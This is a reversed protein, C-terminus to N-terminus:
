SHQNRRASHLFCTRIHAKPQPGLGRLLQRRCNFPNRRPYPAPKGGQAGIGGGLRLEATHRDQWPLLHREAPEPRGIRANCHPLPRFDFGAGGAADPPPPSVDGGFPHQLNVALNGGTFRSFVLANRSACREVASARRQRAGCLERRYVQQNRQAFREVYFLQSFGKRSTTHPKSGQRHRTTFGGKRVFVRAVFTLSSSNAWSSAAALSRLCVNLSHHRSVRDEASMPAASKEDSEIETRTEPNTAAAPSRSRGPAPPRQPSKWLSVVTNACAPYSSM